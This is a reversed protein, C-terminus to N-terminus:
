RESQGADPRIRERVVWKGDAYVPEQQEERGLFRMVAMIAAVYVVDHTTDVWTGKVDCLKVDASGRSGLTAIAAAVGERAADVWEEPAKGLDASIDAEDGVSVEAFFTRGKAQCFLRYAATPM